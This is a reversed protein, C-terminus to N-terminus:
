TPVSASTRGALSALAKHVLRDSFVKGPRIRGPSRSNHPPICEHPLGSTEYICRSGEAKSLALM